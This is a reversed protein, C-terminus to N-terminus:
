LNSFLNSLELCFVCKYNIIERKDQTGKRLVLYVEAIINSRWGFILTPVSYFIWGFDNRLCFCRFFITTITSDATSHFFCPYCALFSIMNVSLLCSNKVCHIGRLSLAQNTIRTQSQPLKRWFFFFHHARHRVKTWVVYLPTVLLPSHLLAKVLTSASTQLPHHAPAGTSSGKWPSSNGTDQKKQIHLKIKIVIWCTLECKSYAHMSAPLYPSFWIYICYTGM